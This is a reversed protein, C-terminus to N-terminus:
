DEVTDVSIKGYREHNGEKKQLQITKIANGHTSVARAQNLQQQNTLAHRLRSM